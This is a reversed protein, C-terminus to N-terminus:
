SAGRTEEPLPTEKIEQVDKPEEKKEVKNEIESPIAEKTIELKFHYCLFKLYSSFDDVIAQFSAGQEEPTVAFITKGEGPVASTVLLVPCSGKGLRDETRSRILQVAEENAWDPPPLPDSAPAEGAILKEVAKAPGLAHLSRIADPSGGFGARNLLHAAETLKWESLNRPKM